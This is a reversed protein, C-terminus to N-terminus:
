VCSEAENPRCRAVPQTGATPSVTNTGRRLARALTTPTSEVPASVRCAPRMFIAAVESSTRCCYYSYPLGLMEKTETGWDYMYECTVMILVQHIYKLAPVLASLLIPKSMCTYSTCPCTATLAVRMLMLAEWWMGCTRSGQSLSSTPLRTLGCATTACCLRCISPYRPSCCLDSRSPLPHDGDQGRWLWLCGWSVCSVTEKNVDLLQTAQPAWEEFSSLPMLRFGPLKAQELEWEERVDVLQVDELRSPDAAAAALIEGLEQVTM